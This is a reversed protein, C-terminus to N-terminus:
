RACDLYVADVREANYSEKTSMIGTQRTFTLPTQEGSVKGSIKEVGHNLCIEGIKRRALIARALGVFSASLIERQSAELM